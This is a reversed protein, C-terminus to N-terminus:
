VNVSPRPTTDTLDSGSNSFKVEREADIRLIGSAKHAGIKECGAPRFELGGMGQWLFATVFIRGCLHVSRRIMQEPAASEKDRDERGVELAKEIRDKGEGGAVLFFPVPM